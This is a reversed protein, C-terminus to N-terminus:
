TVSNVRLPVGHQNALLEYGARLLRFLRPVHHIRLVHFGAPLLDSVGLHGRLLDWYLLVFLFWNRLVGPHGPRLVARQRDAPRLDDHQGPLRLPGAPQAGESSSVCLYRQALLPRQLVRQKQSM